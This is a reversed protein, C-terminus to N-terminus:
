SPYASRLKGGNTPCNKVGFLSTLRDASLREERSNSKSRHSSFFDSRPIQTRRDFFNGRWLRKYAVIQDSAMDRYGGDRV